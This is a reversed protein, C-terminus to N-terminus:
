SDRPSPSTYLLCIDVKEKGSIRRRKKRDSGAGSGAAGQQQGRRDGRKDDKSKKKPRTSQNLADLDIKGIINLTVAPKPAPTTFIEEGKKTEEKMNQDAVENKVNDEKAAAAPEPMQVPKHEAKPEPKPVPKVEPKPEPEPEAKVEAKPQPEPKPQPKVEAEKHEPKPQPAPQKPKADEPNAVVPRGKEDFVLKGLIRPKNTESKLKVEEAAGKSKNETDKKRTVSISSSQQKLDKGSKFEDNLMRVVDESISANISEQFPINKKRLFNYVTAVSINLDKAVSSIKIKAM